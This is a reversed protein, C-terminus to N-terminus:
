QISEVVSRAVEARHAAKRRAHECNGSELAALREDEPLSSCRNRSDEALELWRRAARYPDLAVDAPARVESIQWMGRSSGGDGVAGKHFGSEFAGNVVLDAAAERTPAAQAIARAGLDADAVVSWRFPTKSQLGAESMPVHDMMTKVEEVTVATEAPHAPRSTLVILTFFVLAAIFSWYLSKM